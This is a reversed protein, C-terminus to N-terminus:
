GINKLIRIKKEASLKTWKREPDLLGITSSFPDIYKFILMGNKMIRLIKSLKLFAIWPKPYLIVGNIELTISNRPFITKVRNKTGINLYKPTQRHSGM